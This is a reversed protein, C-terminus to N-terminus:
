HVVNHCAPPGATITCFTSDPLPKFPSSDNVNIAILANPLEALPLAGGGLQSMGSMISLNARCPSEKQPPAVTGLPFLYGYAQL